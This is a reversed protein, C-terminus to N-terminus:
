QRVPIEVAAVWLSVVAARNVRTQNTRDQYGGLAFASICIFPMQPWFINVFFKYIDKENGVFIIARENVSKLPLNSSCVFVLGVGAPRPCSGWKSQQKHGDSGIGGRGTNWQNNCQKPM